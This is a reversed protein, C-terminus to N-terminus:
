RRRLGLPDNNAGGPAPGADPVRQTNVGWTPVDPYPLPVNRAKAAGNLMMARTRAKTKLTEPSDGLEPLAAKIQRSAESPSVAAGSMIPMLQAEFAAAAQQYKQYDEGGIAKAVGSFPRIDNQGVKLGISDAVKAVANDPRETLSFPNGAREVSAMDQQSQVMPGLGLDMRGRQSAEQVLPKGTNVPVWQGGQRVVRQGTTKSIGTKGEPIQDM